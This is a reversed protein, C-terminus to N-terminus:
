REKAEVFPDLAPHLVGVGAKGEAVVRAALVLRKVSGAIVKIGPPRVYGRRAAQASGWGHEHAMWGGHCRKSCFFRTQVKTRLSNKFDAPRHQSAAREFDVGCETCTLTVRQAWKRYHDNCTKRRANAIATCGYAICERPERMGSRPKHVGQRRLIQRIRERTVRYKDGIEELTIGSGLSQALEAIQRNREGYNM